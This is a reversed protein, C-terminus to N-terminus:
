LISVLGNILEAFWRVPKWIAPIETMFSNVWNSSLCIRLCLEIEFRQFYYVLMGDPQVSVEELRLLHTCSTHVFIPIWTRQSSSWPHHAINRGTRITACECTIKPRQWPLSHWCSLSELRFFCIKLFPSM